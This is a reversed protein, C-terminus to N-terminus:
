QEYGFVAETEVGIPLSKKQARTVSIRLDVGGSATLRIQATGVGVNAQDFTFSFEGAAVSSRTESKGPATFTVSTLQQQAM